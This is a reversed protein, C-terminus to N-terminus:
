RVFAYARWEGDELQDKLKYGFSFYKELVEEAREKIVGSIIVVANENLREAITPALKMLIDATINACLVDVKDHFGDLLSATKVSYTKEDFENLLLNVHLNEIAQPDLDCFYARRAGLKLAAMGLIGSGCGVDAVYKGELKEKTLLTLCMKTSQHEGTGFAAGPEIRVYPKDGEPSIWSPFVSVKELEIPKYYRKWVSLWDVDEIKETTMDLSGVDCPMEKKVLELKQSLFSFLEGSVDDFFGEVTVEGQKDKEDLYDWVAGNLDIEDFDSPDNVSIGTAGGELLIDSILENADHTTTITIKYSM